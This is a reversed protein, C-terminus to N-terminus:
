QEDDSHESFIQGILDLETEQNFMTCFDNEMEVDDFQAFVESPMWGQNTLKGAVSPPQQQEEAHCVSITDPPVQHTETHQPGTIHFRQKYQDMADAVLGAAALALAQKECNIFHSDTLDTVVEESLCNNV